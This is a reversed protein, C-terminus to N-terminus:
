PAGGEARRAVRRASALAGELGVAKILPVPDAPSPDDIRDLQRLLAGPRLVEAEELGGLALLSRVAERHAGRLSEVIWPTFDAADRRGRVAEPLIGRMASRLVGKVERGRARQDAPTALLTEVVRRDYFPHRLDLGRRAAFRDLRALLVFLDSDGTLLLVLRRQVESPAAIADRRAMRELHWAHLEAAAGPALWTPWVDAPRRVHRRALDRMPPPVFARLAQRGLARLASAGGGSWARAEALADGVRAGRLADVIEHGTPHLLDDGGIGTLVPGRTAGEIEAADFLPELLALTAEYVEGPGPRGAGPSTVEAHARPDVIVPRGGTADVVARFHVAEDCPSGPFALHLLDLPGAARAALCAVSSSDLGGSVLVSAGRDPDLRSRVAHDLAERLREACAEAGSPGTAFPDPTWVRRRILRDGRVRTTGGPQAAEIGRFLTPGEEAHDEVLYRAAERRDLEPRPLWGTTWPAHIESAVLALGGHRAVYAPRVGLADRVVVLERVREDWIAAAYDGDVHRVLDDGWREWAAVLLEADATGAALGLRDALEDRRDLRADAVVHLPGRSAVAGGVPLLAAIESTWANGRAGRHAMAQAMARAADDLRRPAGGGPALAVVVAIGSM